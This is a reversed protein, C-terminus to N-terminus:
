QRAMMPMHNFHKYYDTDDIQKFYDSGSRYLGDCVKELELTNFVLWEASYTDFAKTFLDDIRERLKYNFYTEQAVIDSGNIFTITFDNAGNQEEYVKINGVTKIYNMM